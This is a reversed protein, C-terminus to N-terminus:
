NGFVALILALFAIILWPYPGHPNTVGNELQGYRLAVFVIIAAAFLIELSVHSM